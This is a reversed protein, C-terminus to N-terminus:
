RSERLAARRAAAKLILSRSLRRPMVLAGVIRPWVSPDGAVFPLCDPLARILAFKSSGRIANWIFQNSTSRAVFRVCDRRLAAEARPNDCSDHYAALVEDALMRTELAWNRVPAGSSLNDATMLTYHSLPTAVCGVDGQYALRTWYFMDGCIRTEPIPGIARLDSLRTVCACWCVERKGAFFASIFDTGHETEPGTACRVGVDGYHIYCGTYVFALERRRGLLDLVRRAFDPEIYDDDSLGLFYEGRAQDILFNGHAAAPMTREHRVHRLRPDRYRSLVAPTEDTSGNDSVLIEIEAATQALASEVARAVLSARNLTPIVITLAPRSRRVPSM